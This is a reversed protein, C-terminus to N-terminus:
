FQRGGTREYSGYTATTPASRHKVKAVKTKTAPQVTRQANNSQQAQGQGNVLDGPNIHKYHASEPVHEQAKAPHPRSAPQASRRGGGSHIYSNFNQADAAQTFIISVSALLLPQLKMLTYDWKAKTETYSLM